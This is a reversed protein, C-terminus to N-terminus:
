VELTQEQNIALLAASLKVAMCLALLHSAGNEIEGRFLLYKPMWFTTAPLVVM